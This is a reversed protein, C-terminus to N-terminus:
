LDALAVLFVEIKQKMESPNCNYNNFLVSFTLDKGAKTKVYGCYGRARSIYGTKAHMNKEIFTGKGLNKMSGSLGAQPLSNYFPKYLLSDHYMKQLLSAEFHTTVTNARSLGNGDVMYLESVDLGKGKWYDKAKEIGSYTSGKGMTQLMTECFLNNSTLNTYYVIKELAPSYHSHMLTKEKKVEPNECGYSSTACNSPTKVGLNNLSTELFEACLLAPDPLAARVELASKNPPITGKVKKKAGFPDGTVYADDEKGAAKVDDEHELTINKYHPKVDIIKAKSGPEKSEFVISYLNDNFSLGCPAVGFYNSIDGWIWNAPIRQEYCSADAIIHGKVEKLGKQVLVEAWRDTVDGTDKKLKFLESNLTPDGSGRIIIDGNLVGSTKDFNGTFYIRTDYRYFKGLTGLAAGTTVVKLTSAPIVAIHSNYEKVVNGTEADLVCFAFTANALVKDTKWTDVIQEITQSFVLAPFLILILGFRM